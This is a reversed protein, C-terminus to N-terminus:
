RAASAAAESAAAEPQAALYTEACALLTNDHIELVAPISGDPKKQYGGALNWVVPIGMTALTRFVFADRKRLQTTTLFGGLPDKV